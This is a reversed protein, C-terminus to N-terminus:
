KHSFGPAFLRAKMESVLLRSNGGSNKFSNGDYQLINYHDLSIMICNIADIENDLFM